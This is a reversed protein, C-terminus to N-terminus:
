YQGSPVQIPFSPEPPSSLAIAASAFKYFFPLAILASGNKSENQKLGILEAM